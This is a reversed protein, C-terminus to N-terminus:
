CKGLEHRGQEENIHRGHLQWWHHGQSVRRPGDTSTDKVGGKAAEVDAAHDAFLRQSHWKSAEEAFAPFASAPTDFGQTRPLFKMVFCHWRLDGVM